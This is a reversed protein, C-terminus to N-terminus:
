QQIYKSLTNNLDITKIINIKIFCDPLICFLSWFRNLAEWFDGNRIIINLNTKALSIYHETEKREHLIKLFGESTPRQMKYKSAFICHTTTLIIFNIM